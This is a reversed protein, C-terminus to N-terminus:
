SVTIPSLILCGTPQTLWRLWGATQGFMATEQSTSSSRASAAFRPLSSAAALMGADCPRGRRPDRKSMAYMSHALALAELHLRLALTVKGTVVVCNQCNGFVNCIIRNFYNRM